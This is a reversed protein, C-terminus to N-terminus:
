FKLKFQKPPTFMPKFTPTKMSSKDKRPMVDRMAGLAISAGIATFAIGFGKGVDIM